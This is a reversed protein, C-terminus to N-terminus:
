GASRLRADILHWPIVKRIAAAMGGLSPAAALAANKADVVTAKPLGSAEGLWLVMPPCVIHNYAYAATRSPDPTRGYAGAEHYQSLWGCWHERQSEYWLEKGWLQRMKLAKEFSTTIPPHEPLTRIRQALGRPSLGDRRVSKAKM